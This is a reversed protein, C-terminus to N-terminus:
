SLTIANHYADTCTAPSLETIGNGGATSRASLNTLTIALTTLTSPIKINISLIQDTDNNCKNISIRIYKSESKQDSQQINLIEYKINILRAMVM